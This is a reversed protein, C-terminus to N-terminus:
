ELLVSFSGKDVSQKALLSVHNYWYKNWNVIEVMLPYTICIQLRLKWFEFDQKNVSDFGVGQERILWGEVKKCVRNQSWKAQNQSGTGEMRGVDKQDPKRYPTKGETM